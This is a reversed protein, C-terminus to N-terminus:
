ALVVEAGRRRLLGVTEELIEVGTMDFFPVQDLDLVSCRHGSVSHIANRLHFGSAFFLPGEVRILRVATCRGPDGDRGDRGEPPLPIPRVSLRSMQFIVYVFSAFIGVPVGVILDTALIAGAT